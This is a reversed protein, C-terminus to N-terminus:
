VFRMRVWFSGSCEMMLDLPIIPNYYLVLGGFGYICNNVVTVLFILYLLGVSGVGVLICATAVAFRWLLM